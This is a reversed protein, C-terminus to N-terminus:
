ASGSEFRLRVPRAHEKISKKIIRKLKAEAESDDSQMSPIPQGAVAVIRDGVKVGQALAQGAADIFVVRAGSVDFGLPGDAFDLEYERPATKDQGETLKRITKEFSLGADNFWKESKTFNKILSRRAKQAIRGVKKILVRGNKQTEVQTLEYGSSEAVALVSTWGGAIVSVHKLCRPPHTLHRALEVADEGIKPVGDAMFCLHINEEYPIDEAVQRRDKGAGIRICVPLASTINGSRVDIVAFRWDSSGRGYVHQMVEDASVAFLPLQSLDTSGAELLSLTSLFSLPTTKHLLVAEAMVDDARSRGKSCMRTCARNYIPVLDSEEVEACTTLGEALLVIIVFLLLHDRGELVLQDCFSICAETDSTDAPMLFSWIFAAPSGACSKELTNALQLCSDQGTAIVKRLCSPYHYRLLQVIVPFVHQDTCGGDPCEASSHWWKVHKRCFAAALDHATVHGSTAGIDVHSELLELFSQPVDDDHIVVEYSADTSERHGRLGLQKIWSAYRRAEFPLAETDNDCRSSSSAKELQEDVIERSCNEDLGDEEIDEANWLEREDDEDNDLAESNDASRREKVDGRSRSFGM